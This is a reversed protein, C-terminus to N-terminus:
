RAEGLRSAIAPSVRAARCAPALTAVQGLLVMCVGGIVFFDVPVTALEFWNSFQVNLLIAAICGVGVGVTTLLANELMFYGVIQGQQAGLARRIGIQRRRRIVAFRAQGFIGLATVLSLCAVVWLLTMSAAYEAQYSQAKVQEFTMFEEIKRGHLRMLYDLTNATVQAQQGPAHRVLYYVYESTEIVPALVSHEVVVWFSWAAQLTKVVGRVQQPRKDIYITKGVVQRWDDPYLSQALAQTIIIETAVRFGDTEAYQPTQAFSEGAVLELGMTELLAADGGYYGSFTDYDGEAQTAVELFNGWGSLPVGSTVSATEVGSLGKLALLDQEIQSARAQTDGPLNTLVYFTNQEDLGSPRSLLSQKEIALYAANVLIMFTVAIQLIFLVPATRSHNLTKLIPLLDRM